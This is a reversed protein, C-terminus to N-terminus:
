NKLWVRTHKAFMIGDDNDIIQMSIICRPNLM